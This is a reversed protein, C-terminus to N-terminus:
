SAATEAQKAPSVILGGLKFLQDGIAARVLLQGPEKFIMPTIVLNLILAIYPATEDDLDILGNFEEEPPRVSGTPKDDPDGPLWFRFEVDNSFVAKKQFLNISLGFKPLAAPFDHTVSLSGGYSGMFSVKGGLEHRIDDCFITYGYVDPPDIIGM